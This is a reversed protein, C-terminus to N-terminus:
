NLREYINQNIYEVIEELSFFQKAKYFDATVDINGKRYFGDPCCLLVKGSKIHLGFELLSIPSQSGPALYLVIWDAKELHFLEWNVQAVFQPDEKTQKWSSDWDPRRPNCILVDDNINSSVLEQWDISNGMDITGALFIKKKYFAYEVPSLYEPAKIIRKKLSEM